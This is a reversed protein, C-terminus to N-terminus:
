VHARGIELIDQALVALNFTAVTPKAAEVVVTSPPTSVNVIPTPAVPVTPAIYAPLEPVAALGLLRTADKEQQPTPIPLSIVPRKPPLVEAPVATSCGIITTALIIAGLLPFFFRSM